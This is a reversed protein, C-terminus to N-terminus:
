GVTNSSKIAMFAQVARTRHFVDRVEHRALVAALGDGVIQIRWSYRSSVYPMVTYWSCTISNLWFSAPKELALRVAEFPSPFFFFSMMSLIFGSKKSRPLAFPWSASRSSFRSRSPAKADYAKLLDCEM